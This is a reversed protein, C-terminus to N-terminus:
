TSARHSFVCQSVLHEATPWRLSLLLFFLKGEKERAQTQMNNNQVAGRTKRKVSCPLKKEQTHEEWVETPAANESWTKFVTLVCIIFVGRSEPFSEASHLSYSKLVHKTIRKAVDTVVLRMYSLASLKAILYSTDGIYWIFRRASAIGWVITSSSHTILNRWTGILPKLVTPLTLRHFGAQLSSSEGWICWIWREDM